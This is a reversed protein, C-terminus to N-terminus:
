ELGIQGGHYFSERSGLGVSGGHHLVHSELGIQGGHYLVHSELGVRGAHYLIRSELGVHGSHYLSLCSGVGIQGSMASHKLDTTQALAWGLHPIRGRHDYM